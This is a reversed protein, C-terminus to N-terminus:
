RANYLARSFYNILITAIKRAREIDLADLSFVSSLAHLKLLTASIRANYLGRSFYNSLIAGIKTACEIDHADLSFDSSLM